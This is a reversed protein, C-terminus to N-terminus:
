ARGGEVHSSSVFSKGLSALFWLGFNERYFLEFSVLESTRGWTRDDATDREAPRQGKRLCGCSIQDQVVSEQKRSKDVQVVYLIRIVCNNNGGKEERSEKHNEAWIRQLM